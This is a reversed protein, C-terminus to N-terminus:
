CFYRELLIFFIHNLLKFYTKNIVIKSKLDGYKYSMEEFKKKYDQNNNAMAMSKSLPSPNMDVSKVASRSEYGSHFTNTGDQFRSDTLNAEIHSKNSYKDDIYLFVGLKISQTEDSKSASKSKWLEEV